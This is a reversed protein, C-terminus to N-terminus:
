QVSKCTIDNLKENFNSRFNTDVICENANNHLIPAWPGFLPITYRETLGVRLSGVYFIINVM